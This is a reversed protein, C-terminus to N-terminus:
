IDAIATEEVTPINGRMFGEILSCSLFFSRQTIHITVTQGSVSFTGVVSSYVPLDISFTGGSPGGSINGNHQHVLISVKDFLAQASGSFDISFANCSSM